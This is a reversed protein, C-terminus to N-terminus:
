VCPRVWTSGPSPISAETNQFIINKPLKNKESFKQAGQIIQNNKNLIFYKIDHM